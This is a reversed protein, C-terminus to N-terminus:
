NGQIVELPNIPTDDKTVEFTLDREVRGVVGGQEIRNGVKVTPAIKSLHAYISHLDNDHSVIVVNGLAAVNKAYVVKGPLINKVIADPESSRMQISDNHVKIKYIPDVYPGFKKVVTFGEIPAPVKKGAYHASKTPQYSSGMQKVDSNLDNETIDLDAMKAPQTATNGAQPKPQPVPKAEALRQKKLINLQELTARVQQQEKALQELKSRYGKIQDGVKAILKVKQDKTKELDTQKKETTNIAGKINKAKLELEKIQKQKELYEAKLKKVHQSVVKSLSKSIDAKIIDSENVPDTQSIVMSSSLDKAVIAVLRKEIEESEKELQAKQAEIASIEQSKHTYEVNLKGIENELGAIQVDLKKLNDQEEIIDKAAEEMSRSIKKQEKQTQNLAADKQKIEKDIAKVSPPAEAAYLIAATAISFAFLRM